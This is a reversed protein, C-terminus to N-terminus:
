DDVAKIHAIKEHPITIWGRETQIHINEEGIEVLTGRYMTELTQVEVEHGVLEQM